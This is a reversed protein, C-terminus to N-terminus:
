GTNTKQERVIRIGEVAPRKGQIREELICLDCHLDLYANIMHVLDERNEDDRGIGLWRLWWPVLSRYSAYFTGALLLAYLRAFDLARDRFHDRARVRTQDFARPRARALVFARDLARALPRARTFPRAHALVRARDHALDLDLAPARDRAHTFKRARDNELDRALERALALDPDLDRVHILDRDLDRALALAGARTFTDELWADQTCRPIKSVQSGRLVREKGGELDDTAWYGVDSEQDGNAALSPLGREDAKPLRYGGGPLGRANLWACFAEADSYRVGAVPTQGQGDPFRPESWHDPQHYQGRAQCEDLFWQYEVHTILTGDAWRTGDLCVMGYRLRRMLLAEAVVQRREADEAEVGTQIVAKLRDRVEAEITQAERECELALVLALIPPPDEALCACVIPTADALAAYLRLTEHWWSEGVHAIL